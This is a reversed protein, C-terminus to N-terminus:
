YLLLTSYYCPAQRCSEGAAIILQYKAHSDIVPWVAHSTSDTLDFPLTQATSSYEHQEANIERHVAQWDLRAVHVGNSEKFGNLDVNSSLTQLVHPHYDTLDIRNSTQKLTRLAAAVALGVLGTGAGLELVNAHIELSKYHLM